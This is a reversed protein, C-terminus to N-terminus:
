GRGAPPEEDEAGAGAARGRAEREPTQQEPTQEEPVEQERAQRASGAPGAPEASAPSASRDPAPPATRGSVVGGLLALLVAPLVTGVNRNSVLLLGVLLMLSSGWRGALRRGRPMAPDQHYALLHGSVFAAGLVIFYGWLPIHRLVSM